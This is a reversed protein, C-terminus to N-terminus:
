QLVVAHLPFKPVKAPFKEREAVTASKAGIEAPINSSTAFSWRVKVDEAIRLFRDQADTSGDDTRPQHWIALANV